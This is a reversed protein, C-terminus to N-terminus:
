KNLYLLARTKVQDNAIVRYYYYGSPVLRGNHDHGDWTFEHEGKCLEGFSFEKVINGLHSLILCCVVADQTLIFSFHTIDNFPNPYNQALSWQSSEVGDIISICTSLSDLPTKVLYVDIIESGNLKGIFLIYQFTSDHFLDFPEIWEATFVNQGFWNGFIDKQHFVIKNLNGEKEKDVIYVNSGVVDILQLSPDEVVMETAHWQDGDKNKYFTADTPNTGGYKERWAMHPNNSDDTVISEFNDVNVFYKGFIYPEEWSDEAYNYFYYAEKSSDSVPGTNYKGVGHRNNMQDVCVDFIFSSVSDPTNITIAESWVGDELYKYHPKHDYYRWFVYFRDHHDMAIEEFFPYPYEPVVDFPSSWSQGNFFQFM